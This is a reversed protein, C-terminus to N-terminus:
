HNQLFKSLFKKKNILKQKIIETYLYVYQETYLLFISQKFIRTMTTEIPDRPDWMGAIVGRRLRRPTMAPIHSGRSGISVVMVRMATLIEKNYFPWISIFNDVRPLKIFIWFVSPKWGRTNWVKIFNGRPSYNKSVVEIIHMIQISVVAGIKSVMKYFLYHVNPSRDNTFNDVRPLNICIWFVGPKWGRTNWVKIFNGRPSYNKSVVERIHM